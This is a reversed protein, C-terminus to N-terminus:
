QVRDTESTKVRTRPAPLVLAGSRRYEFQATFGVPSLPTKRYRERRRILKLETLNKLGRETTDASWGYWKPMQEAPFARWDREACISLMMAMGPLNLKEDTGTTWLKIPIQLYADNNGNIGPRTYDEGSADERLLVVSVKRSGPVRECHILKKKALREMTRWAATRAAADTAHDTTGFLRAWVLSDLKTHWGNDDTNASAALIMLYARLGRLDGATVFPALVSTRDPEEMRKQVFIKRLPVAPRKARGFLAARTERPTPTDPKRLLPFTPSKKKGSRAPAVTTQM